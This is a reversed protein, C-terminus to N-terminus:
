SNKDNISKLFSTTSYGDLFKVFKIQTGAKLLANKEDTDITDISYDGGKIYIDPAINEILKACRTGSFIVVADVFYLSSLIVARDSEKMVPRSHGKLIKVSSDSNLAVLLADASKRANLLYEIHGAHLIDFCGNTFALKKGDARLRKRWLVAEELTMIKKEPNIV